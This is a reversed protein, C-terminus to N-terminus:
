IVRLVYILTIAPPLITHAGGGGTNSNGVTIGTTSGGVTVPNGAANATIVVDSLNIGASVGDKWLPTTMTHTHGPDIVSATHSHSPMEAATLTHNQAGGSAGLVTADFNGGAVTIRNAAVGGMNDTGFVTRGRLDPVNFTTLGDGPGYATSTLAFLGAYTTRSIAQGFPVVFNANPASGGIYPMMGGIPINFPNGFFNQLYFAGDSNNYTVVYPTGQVLVGAGIETSPASRIPKAGLGDVNLTCTANNTIHATFAIMQGHLHALTDFNQFSALAYSTATGTTLIAGSIDNGWERLRAMEARSSPEVSSASM